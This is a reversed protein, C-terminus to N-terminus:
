KKLKEIVYGESLTSDGLTKVKIFHENSSNDIVEVQGKLIKQCVTKEAEPNIRSAASKKICVTQFVDFKDGLIVETSNMCAHAEKSSDLAVINGRIHEHNQFSACGSLLTFVVPIFIIKIM